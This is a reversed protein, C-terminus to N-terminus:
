LGLFPGAARQKRDTDRAATNASTHTPSTSRLNQPARRRSMQLVRPSTPLKEATTGTRLVNKCSTNQWPWLWVVTQFGLTRQESCLAQSELLQQQGQWSLVWRAKMGVSSLHQWGPVVDQHSLFVLQRQRQARVAQLTETGWSIVRSQKIELSSNSKVSDSWGMSQWTALPLVPLSPIALDKLPAGM